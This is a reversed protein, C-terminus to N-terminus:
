DIDVAWEHPVRGYQIDRLSHFLRMQLSESEPLTPLIIDENMYHIKGFPCVILATGSGFMELLRKEKILQKIENMTIRRETVKFENWSQALQMLSIRTVGPLILGDTLPPTVLEKEGNENILHLFVNMTGAETVQHDNGFLWLVQHYGMTEALHQIALTPGYNSGLKRDGVGGPWARVFRPDALLDVPKVASNGSYSGVPCCFIYLIADKSSHVGLAAETGIFTPRIYLSAGTEYPPM